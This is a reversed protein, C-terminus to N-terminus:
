GSWKKRRQYLSHAFRHKAVLMVGSTDRDLRNVLHVTHRVSQEAYHHLLGNAISHEPHERSPISPIYPRKNLVLVHEDEFIIDLPIPAPKLGESM